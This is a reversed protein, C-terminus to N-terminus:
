FGGLVVLFVWFYGLVVLFLVLLYWFLWSGVHVRLFWCSGGLIMLSWLFCWSGSLDMLFGCSGIFVVLVGLNM